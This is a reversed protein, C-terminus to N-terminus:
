QKGVLKKVLGAVVPLDVKGRSAKAAEGLVSPCLLLTLPSQVRQGRPRAEQALAKIQRLESGKLPVGRLVEKMLKGPHNLASRTRDRGRWQGVVVLLVIAGGIGALVAIVRKSDIPQDVSEGISKFVEEQTPEALARPSALLWFGSALLFTAFSVAHARSAGGKRSRAEPKQSRSKM